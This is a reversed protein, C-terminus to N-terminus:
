RDGFGPAVAFGAAIAVGAGLASAEANGSLTQGSEATGEGNVRQGVGTAEGGAKEDDARGNPREPDIGVLGDQFTSPLRRIAQARGLVGRCRATFKAM